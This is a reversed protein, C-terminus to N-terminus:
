TTAYMVVTDRFAYAYELFHFKKNNCQYILSDQVYAGSMKEWYRLEEMKPNATNVISKCCNACIVFLFILTYLYKVGM